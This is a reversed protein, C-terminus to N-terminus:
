SDLVAWISIVSSNKSKRLVKEEMDIWQEVSFTLNMIWLGRSLNEPFTDFPCWSFLEREREREREREQPSGHRKHTIFTILSKM